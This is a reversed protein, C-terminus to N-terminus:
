VQDQGPEEPNHGMRPDEPQRRSPFVRKAKSRFHAALGIADDYSWASPMPLDECPKAPRCADFAVKDGISIQRSQSDLRAALPDRRVTVVAPEWSEAPPMGQLSKLLALFEAQGLCSGKGVWWM